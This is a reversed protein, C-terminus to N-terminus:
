TEQLHGGRHVDERLDHVEELPGGSSVDDHRDHEGRLQDRVKRVQHEPDVRLQGGRNADERHGRVAQM